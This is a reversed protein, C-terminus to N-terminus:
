AFTPDIGALFKRQCMGIAIRGANNVVIDIRGEKAVIEQIVKNVDDDSTVDLRMREITLSLGDM